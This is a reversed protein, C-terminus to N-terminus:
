HKQNTNHYTVTHEASILLKFKFFRPKASFQLIENQNANQNSHPFPYIRKTHPLKAHLIYMWQSLLTVM